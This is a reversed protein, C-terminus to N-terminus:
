AGKVWVGHDDRMEKTGYLQEMAVKDTLYNIDYQNRTTPTMQMVLALSEKQFTGNDHGAANTGEVNTSVYVPTRYFSTIYARELGTQRPGDGHISSYDNHVYRDLKLLGVEAAPSVIMVRDQMPANADNLYQRARLWDDDTNEVALTGVTQSFNDVLGALVTDVALALAYAMKGAYAQFLDRNAQVKLASEVAIASYEWTQVDIDTNTETITEFDVAANSSLTKTQASLNGISPVHIKDGFRLGEEFRRDVLQSFVTQEERAVIAQASWIEPLFATATTHDIFETAGTAM